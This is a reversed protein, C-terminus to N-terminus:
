SIKETPVRVFPPCNPLKNQYDMEKYLDISKEIRLRNIAQFVKVICKTFYILSTVALGWYFIITLGYRINKLYLAKKFLNFGNNTASLMAVPEDLFYMQKDKDYRLVGFVDIEDSVSITRTVKSYFKNM